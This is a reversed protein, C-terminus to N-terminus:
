RRGRQGPLSDSWSAAPRTVALGPALQDLGLAVESQAGLADVLVQDDLVTEGTGVVADPAEDSLQRRRGFQWKAAHFAPRTLLSLDVEACTGADNVAIALALLGMEEADHHGVRALAVALDDVALGCVVKQAAELVGEALKAACRPSQDEIVEARGHLLGVPVIGLEIGLHSGETLMIAEHEQGRPGVHGAVLSLDLVADAINLVIGEFPAHEGAQLLLVAKQPLPLQGHGVRPDVAGRAKLNALVEGVHLPLCEQWQRGLRERRIAFSAADHMAVAVDLDLPGVIGHRRLVQRPLHPDAPVAAHHPDEVLSHLLDRHVVLCSGPRKLM